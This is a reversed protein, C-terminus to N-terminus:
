YNFKPLGESPKRGSSRQMYIIKWDSDFKKFVASFVAIDDNPVGKYTFKAHTTYCVYGLTCDDSVDVMNVSVLNNLFVNVDPSNMMNLWDKKSLPNVTPRVIVINDAFRDSVEIYDRESMLRVIETIHQRLNKCEDVSSM